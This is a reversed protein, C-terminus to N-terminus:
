GEAAVSKVKHASEQARMTLPVNFLKEVAGHAITLM